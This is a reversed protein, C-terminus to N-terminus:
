PYTWPPVPPPPISQMRATLPYPDPADVDCVNMQFPYWAPRVGSCDSLHPPIKLGIGAWRPAQVVAPPYVPLQM